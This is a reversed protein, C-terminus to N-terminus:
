SVFSNWKAVVPFTNINKGIICFLKQLGIAVIINTYVKRM